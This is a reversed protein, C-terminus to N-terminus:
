IQVQQWFDADNAGLPLRLVVRTGGGAGPEVTLQGGLVSAREKMGLLGLSKPSNMQEASIGKGNDEVELRLLPGEQRLAVKLRSAQAHRAVNTLTEQFIRFVATSTERSLALSEEPLELDCVVGSRQQFKSAEHRLAPALGLNDLTGPRLESAIEQVSTISKDVVTGAEVIKDLAALLTPDDDRAGIRRELWRLDMKLATLYQGLEDHIERSIRSREEERLSQLRASLARLQRQSQELQAQGEMRETVDRMGGIMRFPQGEADRIVFGQDRVYAYSGDKRRFRYDCSWTGSGGRAAAQLSELARQRDDPHLQSSWFELTSVNEEEGYGFLQKFGDSWWIQDTKLNWDWIAHIVARAALEFREANLRSAEEAHRRREFSRRLTLFLLLGTATVFGLGKLSQLAVAQWDDGTIHCLLQDTGIIWIYGLLIYWLTIRVEEIPLGNSKSRDPPKPKPVIQIAARSSKGASWWLNVRDAAFSLV